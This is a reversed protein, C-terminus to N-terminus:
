ATEIVRVRGTLLDQMLGNKLTQFGDLQSEEHFAAQNVAEFQKVIEKQESLPPLALPVTSLGQTNLNYNGASTCVNDRLHKRVQHGQLSLFIYSPLVKSLDLRIRILYSAFLWDGELASVIVGKGVYNPNGNTRVVLIDGDRLSYRQIDDELVDTYKL